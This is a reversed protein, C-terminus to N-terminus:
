HTLEALQMGLKFDRPWGAAPNTRFYDAALDSVPIKRPNVRESKRWSKRELQRQNQFGFLGL